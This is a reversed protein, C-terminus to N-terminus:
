FKSVLINTFANVVLLFNKLMKKQDKNREGVFLRLFMMEKLLKIMERKQDPIDVDSLIVKQIKLLSIQVVFFIFLVTFYLQM